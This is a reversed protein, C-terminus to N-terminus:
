PEVYVEQTGTKQEIFEDFRKMVSIMFVIGLAIACLLAVLLRNDKNM